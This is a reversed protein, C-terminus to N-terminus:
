KNYDELLVKLLNFTPAIITRIVHTQWSYILFISFLNLWVSDFLIHSPLDLDRNYQITNILHELVDMCHWLWYICFKDYYM